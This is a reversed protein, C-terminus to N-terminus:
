LNMLATLTSQAAARCTEHETASMHPDTKTSGFSSSLDFYRGWNTSSLALYGAGCAAAFQAKCTTTTALIANPGDARHTNLALVKAGSWTSHITGINAVVDDRFVTGGFGYISPDPIGALILASEILQDNTVMYIVVLDPTWTPNPRGAAVYSPFSGTTYGTRKNFRDAVNSALGPNSSIYLSRIAAAMNAIWLGGQSINHIVPRRNNAACWTEVLTRAVQASHGQQDNSSFNTNNGPDKIDVNTTGANIVGATNSDGILLVNLATQSFTLSNYTAGSDAIFGRIQHMTSHEVTPAASPERQYELASLSNVLSANIPDATHTPEIEIRYTSSATLGSSILWGGTTNSPRNGYVWSGVSGDTTIRYRWYSNRPTWREGLGNTSSWQSSEFLVGVCTTGTVEWTVRAGVQNTRIRAGSGGSNDTVSSDADWWGPWCSVQVSGAGTYSKTLSSLQTVTKATHQSVASTRAIIADDVRVSECVGHLIM